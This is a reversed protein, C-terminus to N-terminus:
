IMQSYFEVILNEHIELPIDARAPLNRVTAQKKDKEYDLYAPRALSPSELSALVNPINKSRERLSIVEGPAVQYSAIDVKKGNILIHGHNVLQRAGAITPAYGIRFVVSDLRSELLQLLLLGTNAKSESAITVYRRFQREGLGYNFRLKQKEELRIRYDSPKRRRNQGHQGPAYPRREFGKRSLGPLQQGFRRLIKVRPGTYRSM